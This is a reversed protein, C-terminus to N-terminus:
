NTMGREIATGRAPPPLGELLRVIGNFGDCLERYSGGGNADWQGIVIAAEGSTKAERRITVPLLGEIDPRPLPMWEARMAEALDRGAYRRAADLATEGTESAAAPDAGAELLLHVCALSGHEAARMLPSRGWTDGTNPDAGRSLLLAVTDAHGDKAAWALANMGLNDRAHLDIGHDLLMRAQETLGWCSAFTLGTDLESNTESIDAGLIQLTEIMKVYGAKAALFMPTAGEDDRVDLRAGHRVLVEALLERGPRPWSAIIHLPCTQYPGPANPDAGAALLPQVLEDLDYNLACYLATEGDVSRVDAEAGLSLLELARTSRRNRISSLLWRGLQARKRSTM